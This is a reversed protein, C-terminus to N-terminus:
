RAQVQVWSRGPTSATWSPILETAAFGPRVAPSTWTAYEYDATAGSHPDTYRRRGAPETLRVGDADAAAGGSSGADLVTGSLTGAGLQTAASWRHTAVERVPM